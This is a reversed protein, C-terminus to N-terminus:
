EVMAAAVRRFHEFCAAPFQRPRPRVQGLESRLQGCLILCGAAEATGHTSREIEDAVRDRREALGLEGKAGVRLRLHGGFAPSDLPLTDCATGGCALTLQAELSQRVPERDRPLAFFQESVGAELRPAHRASVSVGIGGPGKGHVHRFPDDRLEEDLASGVSPSVAM